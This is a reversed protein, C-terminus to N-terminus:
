DAGQDHGHGDGHGHLPYSSGYAGAEPDFPAEEFAVALGLGRVLDDLVHDHPYRVLGPGIEVAAHRNGLHYCARALLLPDECRVSSLPEPAARVLVTVGEEAGLLDGDRLVQGRELFLGAERGDDLTVRLRGRIRRDYTLTLSADPVAPGELRHTLRIV